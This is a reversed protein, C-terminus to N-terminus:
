ASGILLVLCQALLSAVLLPVRILLVKDWSAQLERGNDLNKGTKAAETQIRNMPKSLLNYLIVFLILMLLSACYFWREGGRTFVALLLNALIASIGWIPMRTDAFMHFFGMVETVAAPSALRLASRGITLFFMDTGLVVATGLIGIFSLVWMWYNM